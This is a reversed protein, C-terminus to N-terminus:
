SEWSFAPTQTNQLIFPSLSLQLHVEPRRGLFSSVPAGLWGKVSRDGNCDCGLEAQGGRDCMQPGLVPTVILLRSRM